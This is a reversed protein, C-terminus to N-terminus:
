NIRDQDSDGKVIYWNETQYIREEGVNKNLRFFFNIKSSRSNDLPRFVAPLKMEDTELFFNSRLLSHQHYNGTLYYDIFDVNSKCYTIIAKFIEEEFKELVILDVVRAAKIEDNNVEFRIVTYGVIRGDEKLIMFHYNILPHQIFRWLLYRRDRQVTIPYRDKVENWFIEYSEDLSLERTFNYKIDSEVVQELLIDKKLFEKVRKKDLIAIYRNLNGLYIGNNKEYIIKTGESGNLVLTMDLKEKEHLILKEGFGKGRDSELTFFSMHWAADIEKDFLKMKVQQFGLHSRIQNDKMIIISKYPFDNYPNELFQWDNHIRNNLIHNESYAHSYFINLETENNKSVRIINKNSQKEEM